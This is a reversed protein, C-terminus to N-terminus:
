PCSITDRKFEREPRYESGHKARGDSDRKANTVVTCRLADYFADRKASRETRRVPGRKARGISEESQCESSRFARLDPGLFSHCQSLNYSSYKSCGIADSETGRFAYRKSLTYPTSFLASLAPGNDGSSGSAATTSGAFTTIVTTSAAIKRINNSSECGLYVNSATDSWIGRCLGIGASTARAGDDISSSATVYTGAVVALLGANFDYSRIVFNGYDTFLLRSNATDVLM